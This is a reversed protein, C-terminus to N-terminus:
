LVFYCFSCDRQILIAIYIQVKSRALKLREANPVEQKTAVFDCRERLLKAQRVSLRAQRSPKAANDAGGSEELAATRLHFIREAVGFSFYPIGM